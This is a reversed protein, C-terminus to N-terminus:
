RYYSLRVFIERDQREQAREYTGSTIYRKTAEGFSNVFTRRTQKPKGVKKELIEREVLELKM